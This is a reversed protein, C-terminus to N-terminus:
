IRSRLVIDDLISQEWRAISWEWRSVDALLKEILDGFHKAANAMDIARHLREQESWTHFTQSRCCDVICTTRWQKLTEIQSLASNINTAYSKKM